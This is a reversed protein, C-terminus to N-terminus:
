PVASGYGGGGPNPDQTSHIYSDRLVCRFSSDLAVSAGEQYDSEINKIWSYAAGQLWINGQGQSGGYLYLDEVGAYKTAPVVPGGDTDSFRSLQATFATKFSIHFPTTFTITTGSISAIEM